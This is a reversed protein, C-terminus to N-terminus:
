VVIGNRFILFPSLTPVRRQIFSVLCKNVYRRGKWKPVQQPSDHMVTHIWHHALTFLPHKDSGTTNTLALFLFLASEDGWKFEKHVCRGKVGTINRLTTATTFPQSKHWCIDRTFLSAVPKYNQRKNSKWLLSPSAFMIKLTAHKVVDEFVDKELNQIFSVLSQPWKVGRDCPHDTAM